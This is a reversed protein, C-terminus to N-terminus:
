VHSEGSFQKCFSLTNGVVEKLWDSNEPTDIRVLSVVTGEVQGLSKVKAVTSNVINARAPMRILCESVTRGIEICVVVGDTCAVVAYMGVFNSEALKSM